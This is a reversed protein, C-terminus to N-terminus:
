KKVKKSTTSTSTTEIHKIITEVTEGEPLKVAGTAVWQKLKDLDSM